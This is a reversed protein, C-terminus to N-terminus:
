IIRGVEMTRLFWLTLPYRYCLGKAAKISAIIPLAVCSIGLGLIIPVFLASIVASLALGCMSYIILSIQFMLAEKANNAIFSSSHKKVVFVILPLFFGVGVWASLHCLICWNRDTVSAPLGVQARQPLNDDM